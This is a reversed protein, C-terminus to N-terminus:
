LKKQSFQFRFFLFGKTKIELIYIRTERAMVVDVTRALETETLLVQGYVLDKALM